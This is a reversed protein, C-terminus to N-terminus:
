LIIKYELRCCPFLFLKIKLIDFKEKRSNDIRKPCIQGRNNNAKEEM